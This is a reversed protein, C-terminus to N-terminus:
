AKRLSREVVERVGQKGGKYGNVHLGYAVNEFISKPFPNSRQFVMGVKLRVATVEEELIDSGDLLINGELRTGRVTEHMRNLTRLFTSKGCGSPGILATVKSSAIGMSIEFLTQKSGYYFNAKSVSMRLSGASPAERAATNPPPPTINVQAPSRVFAQAM